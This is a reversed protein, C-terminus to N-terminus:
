ICTSDLEKQWASLLQEVVEYLEVASFGKLLTADAGALRAEGQQEINDALVLCRGQSGNSRIRKLVLSLGGPLNTDLLVVAPRQESVIQCAALSDDALVVVASRFASCLLVSLSDRM